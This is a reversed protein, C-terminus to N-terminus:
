DHLWSRPDEPRNEVRIEFYLSEGARGVPSALSVVDGEAVAAVSLGAYLTFVRGPHHIIVTTGYGKFPAAFLVKGPFVARVEAGPPSALEVGNHPVRTGYRADLRPGFGTTVRGAVPWDLVGRFGQIPTGALPSTARGYLFDLFSSLKREKDELAETRSELARREREVRALLAAQEGRLEELRHRRQDERALWEDVHQREAGLTTREAALRARAETFRGVAESDRRALFRLQRIAPLAAEEARLSLLLRLYGVRGLRDLTVLRARLDQRVQALAAELAAVRSELAIVRAEALEKATQAESVRRRQLELELRTQELQGELSREQQQVRSVRAQLQAIERRLKELEAEREAHRTGQSAAQPRLPVPALAALALALVGAAVARFPLMIGANYPGAPCFHVTKGRTVPSL